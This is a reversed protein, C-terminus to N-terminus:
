SVNEAIALSQPYEYFTNCSLLAKVELDGANWGSGYPNADVELIGWELLYITALVGLILDALTIQSTDKGPIAIMQNNEEWLWKGFGNTTDKGMLVSKITRSTVWSLTSVDANATWITGLMQLAKARTFGSGDIGYVGTVNKIGEIETASGAGDYIGKDVKRIVTGGLKRRLYAESVWASQMLMQRSISTRAGVTKPNVETRSFSLKSLTPAVSEGVWYGVNEDLERVFPVTGVMGPLVTVGGQIFASLNSLYEIFSQSIVQENVTYGGYTNGTVLQEAARGKLKDRFMESRKDLIGTDILTGAGFNKHRKKLAESVERVIGLSAIGEEGFSERVEKEVDVEKGISNLVAMRMEYKQIEKSSLEGALSASKRSPQPKKMEGQAWRFFDVATKTGDKILEQAKDGPKSDPILNRYEEATALIEAIRENNAKEKVADDTKKKELESNLESRFEPTDKVDIEVDIIEGSANKVKMTKSRQIIPKYTELVFYKKKGLISSEEVVKKELHNIYSRQFKALDDAGILVASDEKLETKERIALGYDGGLNHVYEVGKIKTKEGKKLFVTADDFTRYGISTDTLHGQEILKWPDPTVKSYEDSVFVRGMIVKGIKEDTVKKLNRVSGLLNNISYRSHQDLFPIQKSEPFEVGDMLLIEWVPEWRYWDFVLVAKETAVINDISREEINMGEKNYVAARSYWNKWDEPQGRLDAELKLMSRIQEITKM